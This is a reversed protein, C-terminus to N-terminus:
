RKEDILVFPNRMHKSTIQAVLKQVDYEDRIQRSPGGEKHTGVQEKDRLGIMEKLNSPINAMDHITLFWRDLAAPQKSIGIIGGKTKSDLNITQELAMDTWVQSFPRKSRSVSHNGNIFEAHIDPHDM